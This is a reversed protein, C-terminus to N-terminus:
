FQLMVKFISIQSLFFVFREFISGNMGVEDIASMGSVSVMFRNEIHEALGPVGSVRKLSTFVSKGAYEPPGVHPHVKVGNTLVRIVTLPTAANRFISFLIYAGHAFLVYNLVSRITIITLKYTM